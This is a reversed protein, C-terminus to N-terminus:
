KKIPEYLIKVCKQLKQRLSDYTDPQTDHGGVFRLRYIKEGDSVYLLHNKLDETWKSIQVDIGKKGGYTGSFSLKTEPEDRSVAVSFTLKLGGSLGPRVRWADPVTAKKITHTTFEPPVVSQEAM